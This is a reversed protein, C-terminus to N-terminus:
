YSNCYIEDGGGKKQLAPRVNRMLQCWYIDTTMCLLSLFAFPARRSTACPSCQPTRRTLDTTVAKVTSSVFTTGNVGELLTHSKSSSNDRFDCISLLTKHHDNIDFQIYNPLRYRFYPCITMYAESYHVSTVQGLQTCSM